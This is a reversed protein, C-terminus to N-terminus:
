EAALEDVVALSGLPHLEETSSYSHLCQVWSNHQVAVLEDVVEVALEQCPYRIGEAMNWSSRGVVVWEEVLVDVVALSDLRLREVTSSCWHRIQVLSSRGVVVWEEVLVDVVVVAVLM